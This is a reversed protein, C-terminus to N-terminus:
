FSNKNSSREDTINGSNYFDSQRAIARWPRAHNLAVHYNEDSMDLTSICLTSENPECSTQIQGSPGIMKSPLSSSAQQASSLSFWFNNCAAYAQAQIGFMSDDRYVSYLLCDIQEAGYTLFLEPFQIEVCIACGFKWGDVEFTTLHKGPTYWNLTENNSCWQKDYRTHIKGEDSIIYISNHPKNPATLQHNCGLAVWLKLEKALKCTLELEERLAAWDVDAWDLIQAKKDVYGSMAGEPFNVLRAGQKHAQTMLKRIEVGNERVDKSIFSQATAITIPSKTM